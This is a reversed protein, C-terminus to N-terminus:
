YGQHLYIQYNHSGSPHALIRTGFQVSPSFRFLCFPLTIRSCLLSNYIPFLAPLKFEFDFYLPWLPRRFGSGFDPPSSHSGYFQFLHYLAKPQSYPVFQVSSYLDFSLSFEFITAPVFCVSPFLLSFLFTMDGANRFPFLNFKRFIEQQTRPKHM